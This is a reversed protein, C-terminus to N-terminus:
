PRSPTALFRGHKSLRLRPRVNMSLIFEDVKPGYGIARLGKELPHLNSPILIKIAENGFYGDTKGTLRM